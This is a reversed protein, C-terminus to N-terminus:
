VVDVTRPVQSLGPHHPTTTTALDPSYRRRGPSLVEGGVIRYSLTCPLYTLLTEFVRMM